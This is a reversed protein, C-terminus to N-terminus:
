CLLMVTKQEVWRAYCPGKPQRNRKGKLQPKDIEKRTLVSASNKASLPESAEETKVADAFVGFGCDSVLDSFDQIEMDFRTDPKDSGYREMAENYSLRPLPTCIEMDLVSKFLYSIFGETMSLIDEVDVFSMELDIQTFEPQRDARLDECPFEQM